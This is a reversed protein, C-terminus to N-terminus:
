FKSEHLTNMNESPEVNGAMETALGHNQLESSLILSTEMMDFEVAGENM